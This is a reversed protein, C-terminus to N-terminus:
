EGNEERREGKGQAMPILEIKVRDAKKEKIYWPEFDWSDCRGESIREFVSKLDEFTAAAADKGEAAQDREAKM